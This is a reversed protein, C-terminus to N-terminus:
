IAFRAFLYAVLLLGCLGASYIAAMRIITPRWPHQMAKHVKEANAQADEFSSFVGVFEGVGHKGRQAAYQAARIDRDVSLSSNEM